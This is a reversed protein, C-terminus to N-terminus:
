LLYVVYILTVVTIIYVSDFGYYSKMNSGDKMEILNTLLAKFIASWTVM